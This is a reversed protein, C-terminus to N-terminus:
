KKQGHTVEADCSHGDCPEVYCALAYIVILLVVVPWLSEQKNMCQKRPLPANSRSILNAAALIEAQSLSEWNDIAEIVKRYSM